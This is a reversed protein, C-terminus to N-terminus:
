APAAARCSTEDYIATLKQVTKEIGFREHVTVRGAAALDAREQPHDILHRITRALLASDGPAILRGNMGDTIIETPGGLAAAIVPVGASMAELIVQGFPEASISCHVVLDTTALPGSIDHVLGLFRIRDRFASAAVSAKLANAYEADAATTADGAILFETSRDDRCLSTAADIFVHQGKWGALRGVVVVRHVNGVTAGSRTRGTLRSIGDPVTRVFNGRGPVGSEVIVSNQALLSARTSASNCIAINPVRRVLQRVFWATRAPMYPPSVFDRMHWLLQRRVGGATLVSLLHMKLGNSHVIEARWREAIRRLRWAYRCAAALNLLGGSFVGFRTVQGLRAGFPLCLVRCGPIRRFEDVLPGASGLVVLPRYRRRDLSAVLRLLAISGGSILGTPELYLIRTTV